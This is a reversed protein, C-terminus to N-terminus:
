FIALILWRVLVILAIFMAVSLLGGILLVSRALMWGDHRRSSDAGPPEPRSPM